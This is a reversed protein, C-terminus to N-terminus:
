ALLALVAERPTKGRKLEIIVLNGERDMALLDIFKGFATSVQRGILM